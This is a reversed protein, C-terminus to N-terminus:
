RIAQLKKLAQYVHARASEASCDLAAGIEEYELGEFKRMVLALGQKHPLRALARKLNLMGAHGDAVAAAHLAGNEGGPPEAGTRFVRARRAHDRARNRCLNAAIKYLWPRLGAESDLQSYARYARLWTEQFLDLADERDRTMRLLFRMIEREHRSLAEEFPPPLALTAISKM